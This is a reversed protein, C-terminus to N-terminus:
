PGPVITTVTFLGQDGFRMDGLTVATGAEVEAIEYYPFRAWVLLARFDPDNEVARRAAPHHSHKPIPEPDFRVTAPGWRFTGREYHDGADVIVTKRLPNLPVPGVMLAAPPRGNSATWAEKVRLQASRASLTMLLMYITAVAIAARAPAVLRRRRSLVAGAALALWLWPDVIFVADGYFWRNSFPMLLRVGYNNLSDMGVHSLVGVYCLVLLGAGNVRATGPGRPPRWRDLLVFAATLLIPLVLQALVGHTWGRRLAVAPTDAVFSLVDIDPLNAAVMLAASGFRTRSTLGAEALAAGTLTHCLNDM